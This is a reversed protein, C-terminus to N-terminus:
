YNVYRYVSTVTGGSGTVTPCATATGIVHVTQHSSQAANLLQTFYTNNTTFYVYKTPMATLPAVYFVTSAGSSYAMVVKGYMGCAAHSFTAFGLIALAMIVVVFFKKTKM